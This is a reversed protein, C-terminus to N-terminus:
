NKPDDQTSLEQSDFEEGEDSQDSCSSNYDSIYEGLKM